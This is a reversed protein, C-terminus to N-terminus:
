VKNYGSKTCSNNLKANCLFLPAFFLECTKPTKPTFLVFVEEKFEENDEENSEKNDGRSM